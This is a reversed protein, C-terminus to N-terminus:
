DLARIVRNAIAASGARNPHVGDVTRSATLSGTTPIFEMGLRTAAAEIIATVREGNAPDIPGWPPGMVVIRTSRPLFTRLTELYTDVAHEVAENTSTVLRGDQCSAWDNRGGEVILLSPPEGTFAQQRDIFRNGTCLQGPRLYGSGSQAYTTVKADYHRGVISWWGQKDDGPNDNYRATISDGVVVIGRPAVTSIASPEGGIASRALFPGLLAALVLAIVIPTRVATRQQVM